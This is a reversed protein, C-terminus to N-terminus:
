YQGFVLVNTKEGSSAYDDLNLFFTTQYELFPYQPFVARNESKVLEIVVHEFNFLSLVGRSGAREILSSQLM